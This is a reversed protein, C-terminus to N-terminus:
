AGRKSPRQILSQDWELKLYEPWVFKEPIFMDDGYSYFSHMSYSGCSGCRPKDEYGIVYDRNGKAIWEVWPPVIKDWEDEDDWPKREPALSYHGMSVESWSVHNLQHDKSM